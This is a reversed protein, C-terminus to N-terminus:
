VFARESQPPMTLGSPACACPDWTVIFWIFSGFTLTVFAAILLLIQRNTM